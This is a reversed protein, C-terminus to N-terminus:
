FRLVLNPPQFWKSKAKWLICLAPVRFLIINPTALVSAFTGLSLSKMELLVHANLQLGSCPSGGRECPILGSRLHLSETDQLHASILQPVALSLAAPIIKQFAPRFSTELWSSVRVRAPALLTIQLSFTDPADGQDPSKSAVALM